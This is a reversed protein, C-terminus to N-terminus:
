DGPPPSVVQPQRTWPSNNPRSSFYRDDNNLPSAGSDPIDAPPRPPGGFVTGFQAAAPLAVAAVGLLAATATLLKLRVM